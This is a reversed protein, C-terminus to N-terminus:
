RFKADPYRERVLAKSQEIHGCEPTCRHVRVRAGSILCLPCPVYGHDGAKEHYWRIVRVKWASKQNLPVDGKGYFVRWATSFFTICCDPFGSCRGMDVDLLARRLWYPKKM